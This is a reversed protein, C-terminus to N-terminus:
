NGQFFKQDVTVATLVAVEKPISENAVVSFKDKFGVKKAVEINQPTEKTGDSFRLVLLDRKVKYVTEGVTLTFNMFFSVFTSLLSFKVSGMQNNNADFITFSTKLFNGKLTALLSGEVGEVLTLAPTLSLLKGKATMIVENSGEQRVEYTAGLSLIKQTVSYAQM